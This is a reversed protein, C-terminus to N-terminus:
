APALLDVARAPRVVSTAGERELHAAVQLVTAEDWADGLLQLGVPLGDDALGVPVSAAPLGTLNGLFAFRCAAALAEPDLIGSAAEADDITPATNATSPLAIVDVELLATRLEARLASRLRQADLYDDARFADLGGLVVQLDYGLDSFHERRVYRLAAHVELAITLYGIAAAHEALALSIPVLTAGARELTTLARSGRREVDAEAARWESAPVGIKLGRM